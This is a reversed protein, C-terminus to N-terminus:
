WITSKIEEWEGEGGWQKKMWVNKVEPWFLLIKKDMKIHIKIIFSNFNFLSFM